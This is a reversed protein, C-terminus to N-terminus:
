AGFGRNQRLELLSFAIHTLVFLRLIYLSINLLSKYELLGLISSIVFIGLSLFLLLDSKIKQKAELRRQEDIYLFLIIVIPLSLVSLGIAIWRVPTNGDKDGSFSTALYGVALLVLFFKRTRSPECRSFASLLLAFFVLSFNM